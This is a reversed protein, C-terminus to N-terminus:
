LSDRGQATIGTVVVAPAQETDRRQGPASRATIILGQRELEAVDSAQIPDAVSLPLRVQSLRTL